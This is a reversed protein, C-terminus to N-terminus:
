TSMILTASFIHQSNARQVEILLLELRDGLDGRYNAEMFRFNDLKKLFFQM